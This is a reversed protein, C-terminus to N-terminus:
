AAHSATTGRFAGPRLMPVAFRPAVLAVWLALAFRGVDASTGGFSGYVVECGLATFAAILTLGLLLWVYPPEEVRPFLRALGCWLGLLPATFPLLFVSLGLSILVGPVVNGSRSGLGTAWLGQLVGHAVAFGTLSLVQWYVLRQLFPGAPSRLTRLM